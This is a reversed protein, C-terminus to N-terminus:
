AIPSGSLPQNSAESAFIKQIQGLSADWGFAESISERYGKFGDTSIQVPGVVRKAADKVFLDMCRSDRDGSFWSVMLKSDSDLATWTWVDGGDAIMKDSRLVTM